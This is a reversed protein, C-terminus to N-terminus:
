GITASRWSYDGKKIRMIAHKYVSLEEVSWSSLREVIGDPMLDTTWHDTPMTFPHSISGMGRPLQRWRTSGSRLSSGEERLSLSSGTNWLLLWAKSCVAMFWM